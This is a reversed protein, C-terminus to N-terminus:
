LDLTSLNSFLPAFICKKKPSPSNRKVTEATSKQNQM